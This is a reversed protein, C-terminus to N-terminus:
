KWKALSTKEELIVDQLTQRLRTKETWSSIELSRRQDAIRALSNYIGNAISIDQPLSFNRDKIQLLQSGFVCEETLLQELQKEHLREREDILGKIFEKKSELQEAKEKAWKEFDLETM